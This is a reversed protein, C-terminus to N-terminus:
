ATLFVNARKRWGDIFARQRPDRAVIDDYFRLRVAVLERNIIAGPSAAAAARTAPGLVGDEKIGAGCRNLARQLLRISTRPGSNVAIDLVHAQIAAPLSDIGPGFYYSARYIEAAESRTLCKVEDTTVPRGRWAALTQRTIGYNTPGGRDAPHNVYGGERAILAEIMSEISLGAGRQAPASVPQPSIEVPAMTEPPMEMTEASVVTDTGIRERRREVVARALEIQEQTVKPKRMDQSVLRGGFWFAVITLWMLWLEDPIFEMASMYEVFGGPDHFAWVFIGIISFTIVPRPLRNLGDVFSDWWTKPPRGAFEAAFQALVAMQEDHIAADKESRNGWITGVVNSVANGIGEASSALVRGIM